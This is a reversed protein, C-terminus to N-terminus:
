AEGFILADAPRSRIGSSTELNPDRKPDKQPEKFPDILTEILTSYPSNEFLHGYVM